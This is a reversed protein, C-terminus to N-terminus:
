LMPYPSDEKLPSNEFHPEGWICRLQEVRKTDVRSITSSRTRFGFLEVDQRTEASNSPYPPILQERLIHPVANIDIQTDAEVSRPALGMAQGLAGMGKNRECCSLHQKAVVVRCSCTVVNETESPLVRDTVPVPGNAMDDVGRRGAGTEVQSRLGRFGPRLESHTPDITSNNSNDGAVLRELNSQALLERILRCGPIAGVKTPM